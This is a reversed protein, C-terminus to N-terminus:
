RSPGKPKRNALKKKVAASTLERLADAAIWNGSRSHSSKIEACTKTAAANLSANRKGIQRLAWNVAKKVFNREDSAERVIVPLFDLFTKDSANKDHVAMEAMLVFGARKVYEGKRKSWEHAKRIAFETRDFLNGCCGDVVDWSDFDAAWREMQAESVKAPDDIMSALIRAEHIGTKWLEQALEHRTGLQKALERLQPVSVGLAKGTQIGFRLMGAVAKPSGRRRLEDIAHEVSIASQREISGTSGSRKM